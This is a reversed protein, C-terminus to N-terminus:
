STMSGACPAATRLLVIQEITPTGASRFIQDLSQENLASTM